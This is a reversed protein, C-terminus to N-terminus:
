WKKIKKTYRDSRGTTDGICIELSSRMEENQNDVQFIESYYELWRENIEEDSTLLVCIILYM